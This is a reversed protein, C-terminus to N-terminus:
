NTMAVAITKPKKEARKKSLAIQREAGTRIITFISERTTIRSLFLQGGYNNFVLEAAGSPAEGAVTVLFTDLINNENDTVYVRVGPRLHTIRLQYNGARYNNGRLNFDFPIDAKVKTTQANASIISFAFVLCFVSCIQILKKM